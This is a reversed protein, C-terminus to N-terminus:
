GSGASGRPPRRIADYDRGPRDEGWSPAHHGFARRRACRRMGGIRVVQDSDMPCPDVVELVDRDLDGLAPERHERPDGSRPLARQHEAGDGRLRLPEDVLGVAGEDLAEHGRHGSGVDVHEFPQCGGDDDVLLAHPGVDPRGHAGRGVGIGHQADQEAAEPLGMDTRRLGEREIHRGDAARPRHRHFTTALGDLLPATEADGAAHARATLPHAVDGVEVQGREVVVGLGEVLARERDGAVGHVAPVSADETATPEEVGVLRDLREGLLLQM